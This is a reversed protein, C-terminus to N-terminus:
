ELFDGHIISLQCVLTKSEKATYVQTTASSRDAPISRGWGGGISPNQGEIGSSAEKELGVASGRKGCEPDAGSIPLTCAVTM